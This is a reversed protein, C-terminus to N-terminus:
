GAAPAAPPEPAAPEGDLRLGSERVLRGYTFGAIVDYVFHTLMGVYLTGTWLALAQFMLSFFFIIVISRNSQVAHGLAFIAAGLIAAAWPSKTVTLLLVYLVGRYATEEGLGAMLSVAIWLAKERRTQPSFLHLRRDGQAVSQRWLPRMGAALLPGLALGVVIQLPTPVERPFLTIWERRAVLLAIIFMGMLILLTSTLHKSRDPLKPMRAIRGRSRYSAYCLLVLIGIYYWGVFGIRGSEIPVFM